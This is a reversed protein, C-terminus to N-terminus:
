FYKLLLNKTRKCYKVNFFVSFYASTTPLVAFIFIRVSLRFDYNSPVSSCVQLFRIM